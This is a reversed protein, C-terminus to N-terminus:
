SQKHLKMKFEDTLALLEQSHRIATDTLTSGTMMKGLEEIKDQKDLAFIMTSTHSESEKKKILLHNDAMAAVQPLHTICLVQTTESIQFMKEAIAQAVRGSVGTDIEDFVVTPIHDHKAFIKKLVLMIRSLEGGSATKSLEKLPEGLNTSLMFSLADLGEEDLERHNIESFHVAFSANELYLDQLEVKIDKELRKAIQLRLEHLEVAKEKAKEKIQEMKLALTALHTDKHQLTALEEEINQKYELMDNVTPGYKKQLRTIENLRAEIDNLRHEDFHLQDAQDRLNFSIEEISYYLNTLQEANEAIFPDVSKAEHLSNQAIDIWELGKAEGYLAHYATQIAQHIKEYNQLQNREETLKEDENEELEAEKLESLQFQLLDIRHAIEQENETLHDYERKMTIYKEYYTLYEQKLPAIKDEEYLDLLPLHSKRDMLQITDHQSHINVLLRGFERLVTLTVIKGNIRCISKGQATIIRELVITYEEIEIDYIKCKTLIKKYKEDIFFLGTIEAKKQGHRVYDVSGREGTLLQVADIIISKGAGTEGTLVTLGDHFAVSIDDIIAFNRISLETIM